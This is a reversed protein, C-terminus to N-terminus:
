SRRKRGAATRAAPKRAARARGAAPAKRAPAAGPPAAHVVVPVPLPLVAAPAPPPAPRSVKPPPRPLPTPLDHGRRRRYAERYLQEYSEAAAGWTFDQAMGRRRLGLFHDPRDYYTSLAWGMTNALADPTLDKFLFGTGAGSEERYGQVTDVLGGTARVVPLAGYRLGYLQTLGCPEFRSPVIVFDSGGYLRHALANDFHLFAQVPGPPPRLAGRVPGRGGPRGLRAPRDPSALLPDAGPRRALVDFGKQDVLRGIACFLPLDADVPLGAERQLALKAERKGALDGLGFRHPLLRDTAPNWEDEDIGNLIGFLDASRARLEGDLGCGLEGTQIERAYTPSVTSLVNSHRLAAKMLNLAGFHEFEGPHYHEPGLGTIFLAGGDAVGQYALNHITYVTAAGHLPRSWEVTNVYVPVLATQWDNAHIVDPIFNLRKCLELAGRSLFTFRELNDDYGDDPPGYLFRGTSTATTSSSTSRCTAAPCGGRAPRRRPRHGVVHAGRARGGPAGARQWDIGAYLPLVVRVDIGARRLAKPLAGAVDALGGSKAFPAVESSVFLVKM